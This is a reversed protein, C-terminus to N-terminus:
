SIGTEQPNVLDVYACRAYLPCEGCKPKQAHCIQRGRLVLGQCIEFVKLLMTSKQWYREKFPKFVYFTQIILSCM